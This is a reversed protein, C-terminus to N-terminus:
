FSGLAGVGYGTGVQMPSVVLAEPHVLDERVLRLRWSTIGWIFLAAGAAQGVADVVLPTQEIGYCRPNCHNKHTIWLASPGIVPLAMWSTGTGGRVALLGYTYLVGVTISGAFIGWMRTTNKEVQYGVPIPDGKRYPLHEPYLEYYPPPASQASSTSARLGIVVGLSCAVGVRM